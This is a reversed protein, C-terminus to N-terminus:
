GDLEALTDEAALHRERARLQVIPDGGRAGELELELAERRQEAYRRLRAVRERVDAPLRELTALEAEVTRMGPISVTELVEAFEAESGTERAADRAALSREHLADVRELTGLYDDYHPLALAGVVITAATAVAALGVARTRNRRAQERSTTPREALRTILWGIGFGGVLGGVHAAVDINPVALAIAFNIGILVLANRRVSRVFPEPLIERRRLTFGLFAGFVGFLAGSAGVSVVTPQWAVSVLSAILGSGFYVLAYGLSGFVQECIRGVAWMFYVNFALHLIGAHLFTATLLRWWEGSSTALGLNGGWAILAAPDPQTADVGVAAMVVWVAINLGMLTYTLWPKALPAAKRPAQASAQQSARELRERAARGEALPIVDGTQPSDPESVRPM